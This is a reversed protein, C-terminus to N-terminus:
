NSKRSFERDTVVYAWANWFPTELIKQHISDATASDGNFGFWNGVGYGATIDFGNWESGPKEIDIIEEPQLVGKYLMVRKFYPHDRNTDLDPPIRELAASAQEPMGGKMYANYLWDTAGVLVGNATATDVCKQYAAAAESWNENLYNYLGIHYWVWHEYTATPEGSANYELVDVHDTGILDVAERLDVIAKDLERLNIYRHGRHRRLKFSGPHEELGRTYLDVTDRFRNAAIYLRGLAIYEDETLATEAELPAIQAQLEALRDEAVPNRYLPEGRFSTGEIPRSEPRSEARETSQGEDSNAQAQASDRPEAPAPQDPSCASASMLMVLPLAIWSKHMIIDGDKAIM